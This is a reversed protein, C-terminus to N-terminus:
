GRDLRVALLPVLMEQRTFGGHRGLLKNESAAWWLYAQGSAAAIWDGMRELARPDPEGPGFLGAELAHSSPKLQFTGPWTRQIYERVAETQGPRIYLYALRHEGTPMMHLRRTLGPHQSLDFHPNKPTHIQGHDALLLLLSGKKGTSSLDQRLFKKLSALIEKYASHVQQSAPGFRHGLTDVASFYVWILRRGPSASEMLASVRSWLDQLNAYGHVSAGAFHMRSLPSHVFAKEIFAHVEVGAGELHEALRAGRLMQVPKIGATTLLDPGEGASMPSFTIMNTVVGFEKLFLEYGVFGHEAPSRGTWLTTLASSTTSPAVSTLPALLAEDHVPQLDAPLAENWSRYADWGLGDVLLALIQQADEAREDLESMQVTPHGLPPAGLWQCLSAPLNLISYGAYAPLVAGAGLGIADLRQDLIRPLYKQTLDPM